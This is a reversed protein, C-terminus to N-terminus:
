KKKKLHPQIEWRKPSEKRESNATQAQQPSSETQTLPCDWPTGDTASNYRFKKRTRSVTPAQNDRSELDEENDM